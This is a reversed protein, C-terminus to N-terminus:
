DNLPSDDSSDPAAFTQRTLGNLDATVSMVPDSYKWQQMQPEARWTQLEIGMEFTLFLDSARHAVRMNKVRLNQLLRRPEDDDAIETSNSAFALNDDLVLRWPCTLTLEADHEFTLNWGAGSRAVATCLRGELHQSILDAAGLSNMYWARLPRTNLWYLLFCALALQVVRVPQTMLQVVGNHEFISSLAGAANLLSVALVLIRAWNFGNWYCWIAYLEFALVGGGVYYGLTGQSSFQAAILRVGPFCLALMILATISLGQPRPEDFPTALSFRM